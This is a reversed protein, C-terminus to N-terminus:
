ADAPPWRDARALLRDGRLHARRGCRARRRRAAARLPRRWRGRRAGVAHGGPRPRLALSRARHGRGGGGVVGGRRARGGCPAADDGDRSGAGSAPRTRSARAAPSGLVARGAVGRGCRRVRSRRRAARGAARPCDLAAVDLGLVLVLAVAGGPGVGSGQPRARGGGSRDRAARRGHRGARRPPASRLRAGPRRDGPDGGVLPLTPGLLVLPVRRRARSGGRRARVRRGPADARRAVPIRTLTRDGGCSTLPSSAGACTRGSLDAPMTLARRRRCGSSRRTSASCRASGTPPCSRSPPGDAVLRGGTSSCSARSSCRRWGSTTSSPSSRRATASTSTSSCSWREVQHRLDLHVTPEDLVLM